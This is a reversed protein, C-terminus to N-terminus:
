KKLKVLGFIKWFVFWVFLVLLVVVATKVCVMKVASVSSTIRCVTELRKPYNVLMLTIGINESWDLLMNVVAVLPLFRLVSGDGTLNKLLLSLWSTLFLMLGIPFFIDLPMIKTLHFSRGAEGLAEFMGYAQDVTYGAEFDLINAGGTVQLLGTVGIPSFDIVWLLVAFVITAACAKWTTMSNVYSDIKERIMKVRGKKEEM